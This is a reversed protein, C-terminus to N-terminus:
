GPLGLLDVKNVHLTSLIRTEITHTYQQKNTDEIPVVSIMILTSAKVLKM